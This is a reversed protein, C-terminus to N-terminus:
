KKKMLASVGINIGLFIAAFGAFMMYTGGSLLSDFDFLWEAVAALVFGVTLLALLVNMFQIRRDARERQTNKWSALDHFGRQRKERTSSWALAISSAAVLVIELLGFEHVTAGSSTAVYVLCCCIPLSILLTLLFKTRKNKM